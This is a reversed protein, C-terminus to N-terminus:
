LYVGVNNDNKIESKIQPRTRKFDYLQALSFENEPGVPVEVDYIELWKQAQNKTFLEFQINSMCRGPRAVATHINDIKENTTLLTIYNLGQGILGDGLNLLRSLAQGTRDKADARLFEDADEVVLLKFRAKGQLIFDPKDEERLDLGGVIDDLGYLYDDDDAENLVVSLMYNAQGFFAEPDVVYHIDCWPLWADALARIANSKGTGPSGHWLILKGGELPPILTMVENLKSRVSSVYNTEIENWVLSAISRERSMAGNAPDYSWFNVPVITSKQDLLVPPFLGKFIEKAYSIDKETAGLYYGSCTQNREVNMVFSCGTHITVFYSTKSYLVMHLELKWERDKILQLMDFDEPAKEKYREVYILNDLYMKLSSLYGPFYTLNGDSVEFSINVKNDKNLAEFM